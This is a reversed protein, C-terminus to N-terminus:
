INQFAKGLVVKKEKEFTDAFGQGCIWGCLCEMWLEEDSSDVFVYNRM